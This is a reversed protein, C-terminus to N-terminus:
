QIAAERERSSLLLALDIGQPPGCATATQQEIEFVVDMIEDPLDTEAPSRLLALTPRAALWRYQLNTLPSFPTTTEASAAANLDVGTQQACETLRKGAQDFAATIRRNREVDSIHSRFPNSRLVLETTALLQRANTDQPDAKVAAELYRKAAEYNGSHYAADGAGALADANGPSLRLVEQYQALAAAYDLSQEFLQAAQLHAAPNPPLEAALAM